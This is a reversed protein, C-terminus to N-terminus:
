TVSSNNFHSNAVSVSGSRNVEDGIQGAQARIMCGRAISPCRLFQYFM